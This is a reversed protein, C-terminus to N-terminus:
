LNLHFSWNRICYGHMSVMFLKSGKLESAFLNFVAAGVEMIDMRFTTM